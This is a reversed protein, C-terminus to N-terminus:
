TLPIMCLFIQENMDLKAYNKLTWGHKVHM